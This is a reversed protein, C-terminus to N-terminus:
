GKRKGKHFLPCRPPIVNGVAPQPESFGPGGLALPDGLCTTRRAFDYAALFAVFGLFGGTAASGATSSSVVLPVPKPLPVIASATNPAIAALVFGSAVAVRLVKNM